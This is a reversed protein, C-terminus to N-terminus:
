QLELEDDSEEGEGQAGQCQTHRHTQRLGVQRDRVAEDEGHPLVAGDGDVQAPQPDGGHAVKASIRSRRCSRM